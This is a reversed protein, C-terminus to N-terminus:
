KRGCDIAAISLPPLTVAGGGDAELRVRVVRAPDAFSNIVDVQGRDHADKVVEGGRVAFGPGFDSLDVALRVPERAPNVLFVTLASGDEAACATADVAAPLDAAVRLAVPRAHARYM